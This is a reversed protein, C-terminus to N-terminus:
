VIPKRNVEKYEEKSYKQKLSESIISVCVRDQEEQFVRDIIM